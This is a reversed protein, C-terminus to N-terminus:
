QDHGRKLEIPIGAGRSPMAECASNEFHLGLRGLKNEAQQLYRTNQEVSVHEAWGGVQGKRIHSDPVFGPTFRIQHEKMFDFSCRELIAPLREAEIEFGCFDIIRKVTGALDGKLDEYRLFLVNPDDKHEYWGRVHDFWGGLWDTKGNLFRDFYQSFTMQKDRVHSHFYSVAVDRGDRAVYIYKGPGKVMYRYSLHSKFCRPSPLAEYDREADYPYEFYPSFEDLVFSDLDGDTTLQYLINQVWTTGSRPCTVIFIDDPRLTFDVYRLRIYHVIEIASRITGSIRFLLHAVSRLLDSCLRKVPKKHRKPQM